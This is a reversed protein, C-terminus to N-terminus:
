RMVWWAVFAAMAAGVVTINKVSNRVGKKGMEEFMVVLSQSENAHPFEEDPVEKGLFDCLPEWGSGLKYELLREKPAIRRIEAYYERYMDRANGRAEDLNRAGVQTRM